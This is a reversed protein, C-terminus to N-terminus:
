TTGPPFGTHRLTVTVQTLFVSSSVKSNPDVPVVPVERLLVQSVGGTSVLAPLRDSLTCTLVPLSSLCSLLSPSPSSVDMHVVEQDVSSESAAGVEPDSRVYDFVVDQEQVLDHLPVVLEDM